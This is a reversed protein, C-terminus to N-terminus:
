FKHEYWWRAEKIKEEGVVRFSFVVPYKFLLENRLYNVLEKFQDKQIFKAMKVYVGTIKGKELLLEIELDKNLDFFKIASSFKINPNQQIQKFWQNYEPCKEEDVIKGFAFAM